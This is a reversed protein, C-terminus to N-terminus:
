LQNWLENQLGNRISHYVVDYLYATHLTAAWLLQMRGHAHKQTITSTAFFDSVCVNKAHVRKIMVQFYVGYM